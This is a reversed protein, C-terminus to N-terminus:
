LDIVTMKGVAYPVSGELAGYLLKAPTLHLRGSSVLGPGPPWGSFM